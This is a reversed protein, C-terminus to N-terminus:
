NAPNNSSSEHDEEEISRLQNVGEIQSTMSFRRNQNLGVKM